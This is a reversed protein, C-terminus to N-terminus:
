LRVIFPKFCGDFYKVKYRNGKYETKCLDADPKNIDVTNIYKYCQDFYVNEIEFNNEKSMKRLVANAIRGDKIITKM